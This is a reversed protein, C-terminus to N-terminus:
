YETEWLPASVAGAPAATVPEPQYATSPFYTTVPYATPAPAEAPPKFGGALASEVLRYSAGAVAGDLVEQYTGRLNNGFFLSGAIVLASILESNGININAGPKIFQARKDALGNILALGGGGVMMQPYWYVGPM